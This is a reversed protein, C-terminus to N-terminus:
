VIKEVLLNGGAIEDGLKFFVDIQDAEDMNGVNGATVIGAGAFNIVWIDKSLEGFQAVTAVDRHFEHGPAFGDGRKAGGAIHRQFKATGALLFLNRVRKVCPPEICRRSINRISAAPAASGAIEVSM